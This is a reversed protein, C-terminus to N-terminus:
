AELGDSLPSASRTARVEFLERRSFLNMIEKAALARTINAPQYSHM